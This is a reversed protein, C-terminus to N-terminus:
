PWCQSCPSASALIATYVTAKTSRIVTTGFSITKKIGNTIPKIMEASAFGKTLNKSFFIFVFLFAVDATTIITMNAKTM